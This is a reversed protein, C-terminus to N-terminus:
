SKNSVKLFIQKKQTKRVMNLVNMGVKIGKKEIIIHCLYCFTFLSVLAVITSGYLHKFFDFLWNHFLYVSYTLNSIIMVIKGSKFHERYQWALFFILFGLLAYHKDGWHSQYIMIRQYFVYFVLFVFLGFTIKNIKQLELLYVFVGIFLFPGYLCWYDTTFSLGAKPFPPLIPISAILMFLLIIFHKKETFKPECIKVFAMFLYFGVEIRLTWEVGALSYPTDFFDGMLFLQPLLQGWNIHYNSDNILLINQLIVATIYLPYIRFIRKILFEITSERTLVNTIIYGSVMLFVVVGAGGGIFLQTLFGLILKPTAHIHPNDLIAVLDTMFKHGILVSSFAFIRLWDLFAIRM